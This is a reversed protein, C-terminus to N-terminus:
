QEGPMLALEKLCSNIHQSGRQPPIETGPLQLGFEQGQQQCELIRHCLTRIREEYGLASLDQWRLWISPEGAAGDFEKVQLAQGKSLSRWHIRRLNDGPQYERLGALEESEQQAHAAQGSINEPIPSCNQAQPYVLTEPLNILSKSLHFLGLPWTTAVNLVQSNHVGRHETSQQYTWEQPQDQRLHYFTEKDAKKDRKGAPKLTLYLHSQGSHETLAIEYALPQGAHVPRVRVQSASFGRLNRISLWVSLFMTATLLFCLTFILNNSYNVAVLMLVLLMVLYGIGTATPRIRWQM